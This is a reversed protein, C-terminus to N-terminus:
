FGSNRLRRTDSKRKYEREQNKMDKIAAARAKAFSLTGNEYSTNISITKDRTRYKRKVEAIRKEDIVNKELEKAINNDFIQQAEVQWWAIFYSSFVRYNRKGPVYSFPGKRFKIQGDSGVFALSKTGPLRAVNVRIGYEMIPAKWTFVHVGQEVKRGNEGPETLIPNIPVPVRSPRFAFSVVRNAGSGTSMLYWLRQSPMGVTSKDGYSQGWEYVHSFADTSNRAAVDVAIEFAESLTSNVYSVVSGVYENTEITRSIGDIYGAVGGAENFNASFKSSV